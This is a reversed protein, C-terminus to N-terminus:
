QFMQAQRLPVYELEASIWLMFGRLPWFSIPGVVISRRTRGRPIRAHGAEPSIQSFHRLDDHIRGVIKESRNRVPLTLREQAFGQQDGIVIGVMNSLQNEQTAQEAGPFLGPTVRRVRPTYERPGTTTDQSTNETTLMRRVTENATSTRAPHVRRACCSVAGCSAPNEVSSERISRCRSSINREAIEESLM